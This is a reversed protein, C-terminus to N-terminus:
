SHKALFAEVSPLQRDSALFANLRGVGEFRIETADRIQAAAEPMLHEPDELDGVLLPSPPQANVVLDLPTM